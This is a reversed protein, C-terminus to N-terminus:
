DDLTPLMVQLLSEQLWSLASYLMGLAERVEDQDSGGTSRRLAARHLEEADEETRIDLREAVVLRVDNLAGAWEMAHEPAVRVESGPAQLAMWVMRLRATKTQRLEAETLRRFEASVEDDTVSADPLLRALAPDAPTLLGDASWALGALPDTAPDGPRSVGDPAEELPGLRVGLLESTDAVVRALITREDGSIEAVFAGRRRTFGRVAETRM